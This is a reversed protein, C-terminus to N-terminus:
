PIGETLRGFLDAMRESRYAFLSEISRRVWRGAVWGGLRGMPLRYELEDVVLCGGEVPRFEHRHNWESFPGSLQTDRFWGIGEPGSPPYVEEIRTLWGTRIGPVPSVSIRVELGPHLPVEGGRGIRVRQEPPTMEVLNHATQFFTWVEEVPAAVALESRLTTPSM